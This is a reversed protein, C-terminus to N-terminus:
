VNLFISRDLLYFASDMKAWVGFFGEGREVVGKEGM